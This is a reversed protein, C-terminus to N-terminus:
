KMCEFRFFCVFQIFYTLLIMVFM